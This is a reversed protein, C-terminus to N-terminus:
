PSLFEEVFLGIEGALERAKPCPNPVGVYVYYDYGIHVFARAGELRCWFEERLVRRVAKGVEELCLVAGDAFPLPTSHNELESVTLSLIDCERLIAQVAVVFADEVRQYEETTLVIGNFSRGIDSRSTWDDRVYVGHCDRFMPNYRSVRYEIM